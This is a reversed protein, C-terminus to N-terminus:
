AALFLIGMPPICMTYGATPVTSASPLPKAKVGALYHGDVFDTVKCVSMANERRFVVFICNKLNDTWLTDVNHVSELYYIVV